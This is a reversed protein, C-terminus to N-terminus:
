SHSAIAERPRDILGRQAAIVACHFRTRAGLKLGLNRIHTEVTSVSIMLDAAVEQDSLGEALRLLVDRERRTLTGGAKDPEELILRGAKQSRYAEVVDPDLVVGGYAGVMALAQTLFAAVGNRKLLYARAGALIARLCSPGDFIHTRICMYSPPSAAVLETILEVDLSDGCAPDLVVLDPELRRTMAVVGRAVDGVVAFRPDAVLLARLGIRSLEDADALLVRIPFAVSSTM